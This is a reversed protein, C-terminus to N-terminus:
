AAAVAEDATEAMLSSIPQDFEIGIDYYHDAKQCRRVAGCVNRVALGAAPLTM